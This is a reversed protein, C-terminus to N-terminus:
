PNEVVRLVFHLIERSLLSWSIKTISMHQTKKLLPVLNKFVVKSFKM